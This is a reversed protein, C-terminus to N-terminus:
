IKNIRQLHSALSAFRPIVPAPEEVVPEEVVPEEVVPEEVVPEEVVPEETVSQQSALQQQRIMENRSAIANKKEALAQIISQKVGNIAMTKAQVRKGKLNTVEMSAQNFNLLKIGQFM